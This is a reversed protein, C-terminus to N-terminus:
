DLDRVLRIGIKKDEDNGGTLSLNFRKNLVRDENNIDFLIKYDDGSSFYKKVTNYAGGVANTKTYESLNGWIDFLGLENPEKLGVKQRRESSNKKFWAYKEINDAKEKNIGRKEDTTERGGTAFWFWEAKTPLRYKKGTLENLKKIYTDIYSRKTFTIPCEKCTSVRLRDTEIIAWYDLQTLEYKSVYLDPISKLVTNGEPDISESVSLSGKVLVMNEEISKLTEQQLKLSEADKKNKAIVPKLKDLVIKNDLGKSNLESFKTYAAEYKKDKILTWAETILDNNEIFPRIEKKIEYVQKLKELPVENEFNKLYINCLNDIKVNSALWTNISEENGKTVLDTAQKIREFNMTDAIKNVHKVFIQNKLMDENFKLGQKKYQERTLAIIVNFKAQTDGNKAKNILNVNQLDSESGFSGDLNTGVSQQLIQYLSVRQHNRSMVELYMVLGNTEGGLLSKVEELHKITKAYNKARYAEEAYSYEIKALSSQATSSFTLLLFFSILTFLKM